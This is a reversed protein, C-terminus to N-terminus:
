MHTHFFFFAKGGLTELKKHEAQVKTVEDAKTIIDIVTTEPGEENPIQSYPNFKM